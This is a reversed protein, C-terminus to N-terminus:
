PQLPASVARAMAAMPARGRSPLFKLLQAENGTENYVLHDVLGSAMLIGFGGDRLCLETRVALHSLPDGPRAAHPLNRRDFGSGSDRVLVSVKEPDLRCHVAVLRDRQYRHGWEIANAGVERVALTMQQVAYTNLGCASLWPALHHLLEELRDHESPLAFRVEALVSERRAEERAALARDIARSVARPNTPEDLESEPEVRIRLGSGNGAREHRVLLVPLLNTTHQIKLSLCLDGSREPTRGALVVLDPQHQRAWALAHVGDSSTTVTYGRECLARHLVGERATQDRVLLVHVTM